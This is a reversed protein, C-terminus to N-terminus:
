MIEQCARLTTGEVWQGELLVAQPFQPIGKENRHIQAVVLDVAASGLASFPLSIGTIEPTEPRWSPCVLGLREPIQAGAEELIKHMGPFPVIVADPQYSTLWHHFDENKWHDYYQFAEVTSQGTALFSHQFIMRYSEESRKEMEQLALFGIRQYGRRNLEGLIRQMSHYSHPMTYHIGPELLSRGVTAVAFDSWPFHELKGTKHLPAIVAGSIGRARMMRALAQADSSYERLNLTQLGYGLEEARESAGERIQEIIAPPGQALSYDLVWALSTSQEVRQRRVGTMLTQVLPNPRYGMEDAIQRIREVTVPSVRGTGRLARSVTMVSVGARRAIDRMTPPSNEPAM